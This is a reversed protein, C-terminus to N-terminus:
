FQRDWMACLSFEVKETMKPSFAKQEVRIDLVIDKFGLGIGKWLCVLLM